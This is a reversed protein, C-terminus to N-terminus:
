AYETIFTAKLSAADSFDSHLTCLYFELAHTLVDIGTSVVLKEPLKEVLKYNLLSVDPM